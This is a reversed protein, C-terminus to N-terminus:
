LIVCKGPSKPPPRNQFASSYSVTPRQTLPPKQKDVWTVYHNDQKEAEKSTAMLSRMHDPSGYDTTSNYSTYSPQGSTQTSYVPSAPSSNPRTTVSSITPRGDAYQQPYVSVQPDRNSLTRSELPHPSARLDSSALADSLTCIHSSSTEQPMRTPDPSLSSPAASPSAVFPNGGVSQNWYAAPQSPARASPTTMISSHVTTTSRCQPGDLWPHHYCETQHYTQSRFAYSSSPNHPPSSVPLGDVAFVPAQSQAHMVTRSSMQEQSFAGPGQAVYVYNRQEARHLPSTPQAPRMQPLAQPVSSQYAVNQPQIRPANHVSASAPPLPTLFMVPPFVLPQAWTMFNAPLPQFPSPAPTRKVSAQPKALHTPKSAFGGSMEGWDSPFVVASPPLSHTRRPRARTKAQEEEPPATKPPRQPSAELGPCTEKNSLPKFCESYLHPFPHSPPVPAVGAKPASSKPVVVPDTESLSYGRAAAADATDALYSLGSRYGLKARAVEDEQLLARPRPAELVVSQPLVSIEAKGPEGLPGSTLSYITHPQPRVPVTPLSPQLVPVPDAVAESVSRGPVAMADEVRSM